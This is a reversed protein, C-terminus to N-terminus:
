GCCLLRRGGVGPWWVAVVIDGSSCQHIDWSGVAGDLGGDLLIGNWANRDGRWRVAVM